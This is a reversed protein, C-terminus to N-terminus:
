DDVNQASSSFGSIGESLKHESNQLLKWLAFCGLMFNTYILFNRLVVSVSDVLCKSIEIVM